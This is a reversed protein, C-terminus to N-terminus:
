AGGARELREDLLRALRVAEDLPETAGHATVYVIAYVGLRRLLIAVTTRPQAGLVVDRSLLRITYARSDEGITPADLPDVTGSGEFMARITRARDELEDPGRDDVPIALDSMVALLTGLPLRELREPEFLAPHTFVVFYERQSEAVIPGSQEAVRQLNGTLDTETLAIEGLRDADVQAATPRGGPAVPHAWAAQQTGLFATWAVAAALTVYGMSRTRM